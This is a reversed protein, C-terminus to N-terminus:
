FKALSNLVRIVVRSIGWRLGKLYSQDEPFILQRYELVFCCFWCTIPIYKLIISCVPIVIFGPQKENQLCMKAIRCTLMGLFLNQM